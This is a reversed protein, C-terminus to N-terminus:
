VSAYSGGRAIRLYGARFLGYLRLDSRYAACQAEVPLENHLSFRDVQAVGPGTPLVNKAPRITFGAKLGLEACLQVVPVSRAGNPFAITHPRSGTMLEELRRRLARRIQARAEEAPHNTLIAHNATHNGWTSSAQSRSFDRCSRGPHVAPRHGRKRVPPRRGRLARALDAEIRETTLAKLM